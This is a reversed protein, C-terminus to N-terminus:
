KWVRVAQAVLEERTTVGLKRAARHLLVRVTSASVGLEYAIIKTAHGLSAYALVQKERETLTPPGDATPANARAVLYRKGDSEFQDVLSWRAAVLARWSVVAEEPRRRLKGRAKEIGLAAVRLAERSQAVKAHGEAHVTKGSTTLLAEAAVARRRLRYGNALHASIRTWLDRQAGTLRVRKARPAGIWVGVEDNPDYANIALVDEIGRPRFYVHLGPQDDYGPVESAAGCTLRKWSQEIYDPTATGVAAAVVEASMPSDLDVCDHARLPYSHLDYLYACVGLGDELTPRVARVVNALWRADSDATQYTAELVSVLDTKM